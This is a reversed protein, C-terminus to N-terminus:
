RGGEGGALGDLIALLGFGLIVLGSAVNAWRFRAPSVRARLAAVAGTLALWWCASGLFVGLVLSVATARGSGAAGLGLGAFLAAFSLITMPNMLTLAFTSAYAGLSRRGDITASPEPPRARLTTLGLYCLFLGGVLQLWVRQGVLLDTVVTLGFAAV